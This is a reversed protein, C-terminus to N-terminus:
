NAHNEIMYARVLKEREQPARIKRTTLAMADEFTPHTRRGSSDLREPPPTQGCLDAPRLATGRLLRLRARAGDIRIM